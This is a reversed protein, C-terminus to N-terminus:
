REVVTYKAFNGPNAQGPTGFYGEHVLRQDAILRHIAAHVTALSLGLDEAMMRQTVTVLGDMDAHKSLEAFVREMNARGIEVQHEGTPM